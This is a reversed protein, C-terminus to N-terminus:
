FLKFIKQKLQNNRYRKTANIQKKLDIKRCKKNDKM